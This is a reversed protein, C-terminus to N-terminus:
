RFLDARSRPSNINFAYEDNEYVIEYNYRLIPKDDEALIVQGNHDFKATMKTNSTSAREKSKDVTLYSSGVFLIAVLITNLPIISKKM